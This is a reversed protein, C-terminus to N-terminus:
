NYRCLWSVLQHIGLQVSMCICYWIEIKNCMRYMMHICMVEGPLEGFSFICLLLSSKRKEQNCIQRRSKTITIYRALMFHLSKEMQGQAVMMTCWTAAPVSWDHYHKKRFPLHWKNCATCIQNQLYKILFKLIYYFIRNLTILTFM